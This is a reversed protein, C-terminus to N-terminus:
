EKPVEAVADGGGFTVGRVSIGLSTDVGDGEDGSLDVAARFGVCLAVLQMDYAVAGADGLGIDCARPRLYLNTDLRLNTGGVLPKGRSDAVGGYCVRPDGCGSGIKEADGCRSTALHVCEMNFGVCEDVKPLGDADRTVIGGVTTDPEAQTRSDVRVRHSERQSRGGVGGEIAVSVSEGTESCTVIMDDGCTVSTGKLLVKSKIIRSPWVVFFLDRGNEAVITTVTPNVYAVVKTADGLNLREVGKDVPETLAGVDRLEGGKATGEDVGGDDGAVMEEVAEMSPGIAIAYIKSFTDLEM